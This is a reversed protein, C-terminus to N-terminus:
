VPGHGPWRGSALPKAAIGVRDDQDIRGEACGLKGVKWEACVSLHLPPGRHPWRGQELLVLDEVM